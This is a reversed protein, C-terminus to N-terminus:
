YKFSDKRVHPVSLLETLSKQTLGDTRGNNLGVFSLRPHKYM